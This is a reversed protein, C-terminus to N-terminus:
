IEKILNATGLDKHFWGSPQQCGYQLLDVEIGDLTTLTHTTPASWSHQHSCVSPVLGMRVCTKAAKLIHMNKSGTM